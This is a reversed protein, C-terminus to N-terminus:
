GPVDKGTLRLMYDLPTVVPPRNEIFFGIIPKKEFLKATSALLMVAVQVRINQHGVMHMQQHSRVSRITDAFNHLHQTPVVYLIEVM